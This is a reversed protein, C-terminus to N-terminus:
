PMDTPCPWDAHSNRPIQFCILENVMTDASTDVCSILDDITALTGTCTDSEPCTEWWTIPKNPGGVNNCNLTIANCTKGEMVTGMINTCDQRTAVVTCSQGTGTRCCFPPSATPIRNGCQRKILADKADAARTLLLQVSLDALCSAQTGGKLACTELTKERKLLYKIGGKAIGVQCDNEATNGLNRQDPLPTTCDLGSCQPSTEDLSGGCVEEAHSAVLLAMFESAEAAKWCALCQGFQQPTTVPLAACAGEAGTAGAELNCDSPFGLSAADALSCGTAIGAAATDRATQIKLQTPLDPCPPATLKGLNELRLCKLQARLDLRKFKQLQRVIATQCTVPDAVAIIPAAFVLAATAGIAAFPQFRTM